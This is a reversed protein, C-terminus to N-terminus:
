DSGGNGQGNGQDNRHGHRQPSSATLAIVSGVPVRGTPQVSLVTGPDQGSPQWLVRVMLGLQQLQRRVASVPQGELSSLSVEVTSAASTRSRAAVTPSPAAQPQSGSHGPSGALLVGLIVAAILGTVSLVAARGSPMRSRRRRGPRALEPLAYAPADFLGPLTDLRLTSRSNMADRLRGAREAVQGADPPRAVPDKATLEAVLAAVDAPVASPLPPLPRERHAVAVEVPPGTFPPTGALCEWAVM